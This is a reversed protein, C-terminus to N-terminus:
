VSASQFRRRRLTCVAALLFLAGALSTPAGESASCGGSAASDNATQPQQFPNGTNGGGTTTGGGTPNVGGTEFGGGTGGTESGGTELGGTELGGTEEGGTETPLPPDEEVLLCGGVGAKM